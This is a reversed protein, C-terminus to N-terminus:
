KSVEYDIHGLLKGSDILPNDGGKRRVTSKANPPDSFTKITGKIQDRIIQGLQGLAQDISGTQKFAEKFLAGWQQSHNDMTQRMFPRPPIRVTYAGVQADQAFNSLSERVFRNKVSGNKLQKFYLTKKHAPINITAGFEQIAAAQAISMGNPYTESSLVGVKLKNQNQMKQAIDKLKKQLVNNVVLQAM